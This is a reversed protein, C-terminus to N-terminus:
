RWGRGGPHSARRPPRPAAEFAADDDEDPALRMSIKASASPVLTNSAHAVPRHTSASRRSRRSDDLDTLAPLRHRDDLRRRAARVGRAAAGRLLRPRGGRGSSARGGRSDGDDDHLSALLRVLATIADPVAGGFMGSHVGHDLTSVTVVARITGRLTTTLAPEGIAWNTSDALVIADARAQRRAARPDDPALRVGIEEEGEVFVTSESRCAGGHARAPRRRAGHDRGQRRGRWPRLPPRRARHARVTPQGM